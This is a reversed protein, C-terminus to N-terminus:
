PILFPQHGRLGCTNSNRKQSNWMHTKGIEHSFLHNKLAGHKRMLVQLGCFLAM